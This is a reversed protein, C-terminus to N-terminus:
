TRVTSSKLALSVVSVVNHVSFVEVSYHVRTTYLSRGRAEVSQAHAYSTFIVRISYNVFTYRQVKQYREKTTENRM